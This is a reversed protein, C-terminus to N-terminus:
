VANVGRGSRVLLWTLLVAGGVAAECPEVRPERDLYDLNRTKTKQHKQVKDM